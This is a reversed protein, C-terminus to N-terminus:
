LFGSIINCTGVILSACQGVTLTQVGAIGLWAGSFTQTTWVTNGGICGVVLAAGIILVSGDSVQNFRPMIM